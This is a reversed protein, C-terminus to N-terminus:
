MLYLFRKDAKMPHPPDLAIRELEGTNSDFRWLEPHQCTEEGELQSPVEKFLLLSRLLWSVSWEPRSPYARGNSTEESGCSALLLAPADLTVENFAEAASGSFCADVILVFPKHRQALADVLEQWPMYDEGGFWANGVNGHGQYVVVALEGDFLSLTRRVDDSAVDGELVEVKAQPVRELILESWLEGAAPYDETMANIVLVDVDSQSLAEDNRGIETSGTTTCGALLLVCLLSTVSHRLM